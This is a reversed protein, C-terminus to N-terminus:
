RHRRDSVVAIWEDVFMGECARRFTEGGDLSRFVGEGITGIHLRHPIM